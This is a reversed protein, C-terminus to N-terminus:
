IVMHVSSYGVGEGQFFFFMRDWKLKTMPNWCSFLGPGLIAGEQDGIRGFFETRAVLIEYGTAM